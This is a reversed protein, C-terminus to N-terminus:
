KSDKLYEALPIPRQPVKRPPPMRSAIAKPPNLEGNTQGPLKEFESPQRNNGERVQKILEHKENALSWLVQKIRDRKIQTDPNIRNIEDAIDDATFRQKTLQRIANRVIESQNGYGSSKKDANSVGLSGRVADLLVENAKIRKQLIKIDRQDTDIEATLKTLLSNLEPEINSTSM